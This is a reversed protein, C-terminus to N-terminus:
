RNLAAMVSGVLEAGGCLWFAAAAGCLLGFLCFVKRM